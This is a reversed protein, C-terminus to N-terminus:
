QELTNPALPRVLEFWGPQPQFGFKESIALMPDNGEHNNTKLLRSGLKRCHDTAVAKVATAIGRGRYERLVATMQVYWTGPSLEATSSCAVWKDGDLVVFVCSPNYWSATFWSKKADQWTPLIDMDIGPIDADTIHEIEWLRYRNERTDGLEELNVIRFGSARVQDIYHQFASIDFESPDIMSEYAHAKHRYGLKQAFRLSLPDNDRVEAFAKRETFMPNDLATQLLATGIGRGRLEPEVVIRLMACDIGADCLELFGVPAGDLEAIRIFWVKQSWRQWRDRLLEVDLQAAMQMTLLRAYVADDEPRHERVTLRQAVQLQDSLM